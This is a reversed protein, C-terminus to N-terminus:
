AFRVVAVVVVDVRVWSDRSLLLEFILLTVVVAAFAKVDGQNSHAMVVTGTRGKWCERIERVV